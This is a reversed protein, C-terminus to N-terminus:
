ACQDQFLSLDLVGLVLLFITRFLSLATSFLPGLLKLKALPIDLALWILPHYQPPIPYAQRLSIHCRFIQWVSFSPSFWSFTPFFRSFIFIPFTRESQGEQCIPSAVSSHGLTLVNANGWLLSDGRGYVHVSYLTVEVLPVPAYRVM